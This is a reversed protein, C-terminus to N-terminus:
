VGGGAVEECILVKTGAGDECDPAANDAVLVFGCPESVRRGVLLPPPVGRFLLERIVAITTPTTTPTKVRATAEITASTIMRRRRERLSRNWM